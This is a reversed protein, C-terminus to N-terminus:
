VKEVINDLRQNEQTSANEHQITKRSNFEISPNFPEFNFRPKGVLHDVRGLTPVSNLPSSIEIRSDGERGWQREGARRERTGSM